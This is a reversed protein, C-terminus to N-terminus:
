KTEIKVPVTDAITTISSIPNPGPNPGPTPVPLPTGYFLARYSLRDTKTKTYVTSLHTAFRPEKYWTYALEYLDPFNPPNSVSSNSLPSFSSSLLPPDLPALFMAKLKPIATLDYGFQPAVEAVAALASLALFHTDLSDEFWFGTTLVGKDLQEKFGLPGEIAPKYWAPNNVAFGLLASGANGWARQSHIKAMQQEQIITYLPSILEKEIIEREEDTLAPYILNYGWAINAAFQADDLVQWFLHGHGNQDNPNKYEPWNKAYQLMIDRGTNAYKKEGTLAYTLGLDKITRSNKMHAYFRQAADIKEGTYQKNDVPCRHIGLKEDYILPGGHDPCVYNQALGGYEKAVKVSQAVARDAQRTLMLLAKKAEIDTQAKAKVANIQEAAIFPIYAQTSLPLTVFTLFCVALFILRLM